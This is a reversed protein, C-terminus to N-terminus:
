NGPGDIIGKAIKVFQERQVTGKEGATKVAGIIKQLQAETACLGNEALMAKVVASGSHKGLMLRRSNGVLEPAIPEYTAPNKLVAAAHIGSEHRFANEGVLPANPHIPVKSYKSVLRCLDALGETKIGIDRSYIFKMAGVFQELSVNGSREGFGGVTTAVAMEQLPAGAELGAIANALALGFDNHCHVSVPLGHAEEKIIKVLHAIADPSACGVTDTLGVRGVKAKSTERYLRRLFSEETRTSDETSFSVKVGHDNAYDICDLSKALVQEQTMNLKCKLHLDSSAIFLMAMDAECEAAQAIDEKNIRSLCLIDANLGERAIARIAKREGEGVPPFGAEIQHVGIEDLKRAIELKQELSYAIGPMQEGDRLTSDYVVIKEPFNIKRISNYPSTFVGSSHKM